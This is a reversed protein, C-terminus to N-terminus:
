QTILPKITPAVEGVQLRGIAVLCYKGTQSAESDEDPITMGPFPFLSAADILPCRVLYLVQKQWKSSSSLCDLGTM